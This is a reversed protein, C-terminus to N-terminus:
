QEESKVDVVSYDDKGFLCNFWQVEKRRSLLGSIDCSVKKLLERCLVLEKQSLEPHEGSHGTRYGYIRKNLYEVYNRIDCMFDEQDKKKKDRNKDYTALATATEEDKQRKFEEAEERTDFYRSHVINFSNSREDYAPYTVSYGDYTIKSEELKLEQTTKSM